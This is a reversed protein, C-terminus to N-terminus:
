GRQKVSHSLFYNSNTDHGKIRMGHTAHCQQCIYNLTELVLCGHSCLKDAGRGRAARLKSFLGHGRVHMISIYDRDSLISSSGLRLPLFMREFDCTLVDCQNYLDSRFFSDVRSESKLRSGDPAMILWLIRDRDASLRQLAIVTCIWRKCSLEMGGYKLLAHFASLPLDYSIHHVERVFRRVKLDIKIHGTYIKSLVLLHYYKCLLLNRLLYM